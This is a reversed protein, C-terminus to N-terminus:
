AVNQKGISWGSIGGMQLQELSVSSDCGEKTLKKVFPITDM